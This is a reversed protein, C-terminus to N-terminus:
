KRMNGSITCMCVYVRTYIIKVQLAKITLYKSISSLARNHYHWHWPSASQANTMRDIVPTNQYLRWRSWTATNNHWLGIFIKCFAEIHRRVASLNSSDASQLDYGVRPDIRRRRAEKEPKESARAVRAEVEPNDLRPVTSCRSFIKRKVLAFKVVFEPCTWHWSRIFSM